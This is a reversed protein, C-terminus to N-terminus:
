CKLQIQHQNLVLSEPQSKKKKCCINTGKFWPKCLETGQVNTVLLELQPCATGYMAPHWSRGGVLLLGGGVTHCGVKDGSMALHGEPIFDGGTSFLQNLDTCNACCQGSVLVELESFGEGPNPMEEQAQHNLPSSHLYKQLM